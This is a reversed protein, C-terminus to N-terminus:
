AGQGVHEGPEHLYYIIEVDKHVYMRLEHMLFSAFETEVRRLLVVLGVAEGNTYVKDLYLEYNICMSTDGKYCDTSVHAGKLTVFQQGVGEPQQIDLDHINKFKYNKVRRAVDRRMKDGERDKEGIKFTINGKLVADQMAPCVTIGANADKRPPKMISM